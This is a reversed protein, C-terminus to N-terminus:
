LRDPGMLRNFGFHRFSSTKLELIISAVWDRDAGKAVFFLTKTKNRVSM